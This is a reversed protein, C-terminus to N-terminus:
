QAEFLPGSWPTSWVRPGLGMASDVRAAWGYTTKLRPGNRLQAAYPCLRREPRPSYSPPWGPFLTPYPRARSALYPPRRIDVWLHIRRPWCSDAPGVPRYPRGSMPHSRAAEIHVSQRCATPSAVRGSRPRYGPVPNPTSSSRSAGPRLFKVAQYVPLLIQALASMYGSSCRRM